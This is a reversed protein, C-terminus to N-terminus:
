PRAEDLTRLLTEVAAADNEAAVWTQYRTVHWTSAYEVGGDEYTHAGFAIPRFGPPPNRQVREPDTAELTREAECRRCECRRPEPKKKELRARRDRRWALVVGALLNLVVFLGVLSLLDRAM